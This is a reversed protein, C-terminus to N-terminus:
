KLDALVKRAENKGHFSQGSSVALGLAKRANENDGLKAYVMGLHYQVQPNGPLKGASETLLALAREHAGRRYLIWGLTDSIRPDDPSLEKAAHALALAKAIDGGHESYLWALNNAAPVFRPNLALAKEYAERARAVDGKQEHVIGAMTLPAPSKPNVKAAEGLKALAEDYRRTEAYLTGLRIYPDLLHPSLDIAKLLAAEGLQPEGRLLYLNGLL